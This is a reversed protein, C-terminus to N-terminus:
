FYTKLRDIIEDIQSITTEFSTVFRVVLHDKDIKNWLNPIINLKLINNYSLNSMKVFVENGQTPYLIKFDNFQSLQNRLYLANKNALKALDLWLGDKFWANLQASVFRTKSIVHGTQKILNQAESALTKNFFIILEAAMAGNKTAGLSLCDVGVKWTAQAPSILEQSVLANSFRAGDMHLYLNNKKCIKSIADIEDLTYLTGNEALQTISVGSILSSSKRKFNIEDIKKQLDQAKIRGLSNSITLLKGGGSFFEPAGGEDKNIHADSHCIVSGYSRLFSSLALSNSATGSVMPIIELDSKEFINKVINKCEETIIDNGYPLTKIHSAEAIADLIQPAIGSTTDTGILIKEEYM